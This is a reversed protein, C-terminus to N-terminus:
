LTPGTSGNSVQYDNLNERLSRLAITIHKNVANVSISLQDSIEQYSLGQERSLRYVEKCRSPLQNVVSSVQELLEGAFFDEETTNQHSSIEQLVVSQYRKSQEESRLHDTLKHKVAKSLYKKWADGQWDDEYLVERREWLSTFIESTINQSTAIEGLYRYCIDFVFDAYKEYLATFGETTRIDLKTHEKKRKSLFM